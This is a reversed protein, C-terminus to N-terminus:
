EDDDEYGYIAIHEAKEHKSVLKLFHQIQRKQSGDALGKMLALDLAGTLTMRYYPNLNKIAIKGAKMDETIKDLAMLGLRPIEDAGKLKKGAEGTIDLLMDRALSEYEEAIEHYKEKINTM